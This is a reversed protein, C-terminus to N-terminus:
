KDIGLLVRQTEIGMAANIGKEIEDFGVVLSILPKVNIRGFSLLRVAQQFDFATRGETGTVLIESRHLTNLDIPLEPKDQMYATYINM